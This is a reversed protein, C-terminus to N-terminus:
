HETNPTRDWQESFVSSQVSDVPEVPAFPELENIADAITHNQHTTTSASAGLLGLVGLVAAFILGMQVLVDLGREQWLVAAFAPEAVVPPPAAAPAMFWGLLAIAAAVLLGAPLRPVVATGGMVEDGAISIAFVFLITVLGAGVSLEIVAVERAGTHFLIVALLASTGALWAAATLLRPARIAQLACLAMSVVLLLILV